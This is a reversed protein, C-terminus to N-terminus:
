IGITIDLATPGIVPPNGGIGAFTLPPGGASWNSPGSIASHQWPLANTRYGARQTVTFQINYDFMGIKEASESFSLSNFYGRFIWGNWYLEIGLALSALSPVNVPTINQSQPDVTLIGASVNALQTGIGGINSVASTVLSSLGTLSNQSAMTLAIPDFIYQESRYVEELVNLGEVGSSGTNGDINLVTLEEGWYQVVFGGKTRKKDILKQLNYKVAQPGIYMDIIGVEPVFWHMINRTPTAPLLDPVESSPLGSGYNSGISPIFGALPSPNASTLAIDLQTSGGALATGIPGGVNVSANLLPM